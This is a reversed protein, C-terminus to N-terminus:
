IQTQLSPQLSASDILYYKKALPDYIKCTSNGTATIFNLLMKLMSAYSEVKRIDPDLKNWEKIVYPLFFFKFSVTPCFPEYIRRKNQM